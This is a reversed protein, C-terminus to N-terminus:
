PSESKTQGPMRHQGTYITQRMTTFPYQHKESLKKRDIDYRDLYLHPSALEDSGSFFTMGETRYTINESVTDIQVGTVVLRTEKMNKGDFWSLVANRPNVIRGRKKSENILSIFEMGNMDAHTKYPDMTFAIINQTVPMVVTQNSTIQAKAAMHAFAWEDKHNSTINQHACGTVFLVLVLTQIKLLMNDMRQKESVYLHSYFMYVISKYSRASFGVGDWQKIM